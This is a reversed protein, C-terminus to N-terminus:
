CGCRSYQLLQKRCCEHDSIRSQRHKGIGGTWREFSYGTAPTAQLTVNSGEEYSGSTISVSGGESPSASATLNYQIPEEEDSSCSFFQFLALILLPFKFPSKM